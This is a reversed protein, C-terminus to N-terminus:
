AGAHALEEAAERSALIGMSGEDQPNGITGLALLAGREQVAGLRERHAPLHAPAKALSVEDASEYFLVNKTAM